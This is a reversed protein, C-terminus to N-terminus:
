NLLLDVGSKLTSHLSILVATENYGSIINKVCDTALDYYGCCQKKEEVFQAHESVPADGM